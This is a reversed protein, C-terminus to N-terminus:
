LEADAEIEVLYEKGVLQAQVLTNCPKIDKFYTGHVRAM